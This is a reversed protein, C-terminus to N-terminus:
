SYQGDITVRTQWKECYFNSSPLIHLNKDSNKPLLKGISNSM